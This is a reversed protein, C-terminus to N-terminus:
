LTRVAVVVPVDYTGPVASGDFLLRFGLRLEQPRLAAPQSVEVVDDAMVVRTALGTVEIARTLGVRPALRVVYGAPDNNSVRYVAALDIFGRSIDDRSISFQAPQVIRELSARPPVYATVAIQSRAEGARAVVPM